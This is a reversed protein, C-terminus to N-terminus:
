KSDIMLLLATILICLLICGIAAGYQQKVAIVRDRFRETKKAYEDM